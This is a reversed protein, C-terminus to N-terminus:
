HSAKIRLGRPVLFWEAVEFVFKVVMALAAAPIAGEMVRNMNSTALGEMIPQGYGGAGILGGLAAYGISIIAVTKIGALIMPSALPLDILYLRRWGSLGLVTASESLGNPVSALGTLTNRYIPLLSYLFMAILVPSVMLLYVRWDARPTDDGTWLRITESTQGIAAFLMVLLALGPITQVIEMVVLTIQGVSRKWHGLVALPICFLIAPILSFVVLTLHEVTRWGIRQWMPMITAQTVDFDRERLYTTAFVATQAPQDDAQGNLRTMTERDISGALETLRRILGPARDELDARYFFVAEYEPFHHRDDELLVLNYRDIAPDTTYVDVVDYEGRQLGQYALAHELSSVSRQPLNYSQKLGPWGEARAMFESSFGFRLEPHNRLDSITALKLQKARDRRVGLRYSNEFGLPESIKLGDAAVAEALQKLTKLSDDRLIEQRLTGTYEVYIDITGAKLGEYVLKTGALRKIPPTPCDEAIALARIMEGLVASETFNKCGVRVPREAVTTEASQDQAAVVTLTITTLAFVLM